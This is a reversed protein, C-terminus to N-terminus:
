AQVRVYHRFRWNWYSSGTLMKIDSYCSSSLIKMCCLILNLLQAQNVTPRGWPVRKDKPEASNAPVAYESDESVRASSTRVSVVDGNIDAMRVVGASSLAGGQWGWPVGKEKLRASNVPVAYESVKSAHLSSIRVPVADGNIDAM